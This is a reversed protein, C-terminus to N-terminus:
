NQNSNCDANKCCSKTEEKQTYIYQSKNNNNNKKKKSKQNQKDVTRAMKFITYENNEKSTITIIVTILLLTINFYLSCEQM